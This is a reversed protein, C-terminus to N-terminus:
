ECGVVRCRVEGKVVVYPDNTYTTLLNYVHVGSSLNGDIFTYTTGSLTKVIEGNREIQFSVPTPLDTLADWTLCVSNNTTSCNFNNDISTYVKETRDTITVSIPGGINLATGNCYNASLSYSNTGIDLNADYYRFKHPPLDWLVIGNRKIRYFSPELGNKLTDWTLLVNNKNVITYSFNSPTNYAIVPIIVSDKSIITVNNNYYALLEYVYKGPNL